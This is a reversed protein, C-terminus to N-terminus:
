WELEKKRATERYGTFREQKWAESGDLLARRKRWEWWGLDNLAGWYEIMVVTHCVQEVARMTQAMSEMSEQLSKVMPDNSRAAGSYLYSYLSQKAAARDRKIKEYVEFPNKTNVQL